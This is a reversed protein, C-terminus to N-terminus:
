TSKIFSILQASCSYIFPEIASTNTINQVKPDVASMKSFFNIPCFM